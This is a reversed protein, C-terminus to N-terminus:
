EVGDDEIAARRHYGHRVFPKVFILEKVWEGVINKKNQLRWFGRVPIDNDNVIKRFWRSDMVYVEQGLNNIVKGKDVYELPTDKIDTFVGIPVIVTEIEVYKKVAVYSAIFSGMTAVYLRRKYIPLNFIYDDSLFSSEIGVGLE